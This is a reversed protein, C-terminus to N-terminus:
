PVELCCDTNYCSDFLSHCNLSPCTATPCRPTMVQIGGRAGGLQSTTMQQVTTRNLQLKHKKV